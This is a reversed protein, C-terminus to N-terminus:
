LNICSIEVDFFSFLMWSTINIVKAFLEQRYDLVIGVHVSDMRNEINTGTFVGLDSDSIQGMKLSFMLGM